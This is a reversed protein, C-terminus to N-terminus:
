QSCIIVFWTMELFVERLIGRGWGVENIDLSLPNQLHGRATGQPSPLSRQPVLPPPPSRGRVQSRRYTSPSAYGSGGPRSSKTYLSTGSGSQYRGYDSGRSYANRSGTGVTGLGGGSPSPRHYGTAVRPPPVNVVPTTNAAVSSPSYSSSTVTSHHGGSRGYFTSSYPSSAGTGHLNSDLTGEDHSYSAQQFHSPYLQYQSAQSLLQASSNEEFDFHNLFKFIEVLM